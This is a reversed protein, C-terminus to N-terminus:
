FGNSQREQSCKGDTGVKTAAEAQASCSEARKEAADARNRASDLESRDSDLSSRREHQMEAMVYRRLNCNFAFSSLLEDYYL